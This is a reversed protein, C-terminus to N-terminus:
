MWEVRALLTWNNVVTAEICLRSLQDVVRENLKHQLYYDIDFSFSNKLIFTIEWLFQASFFSRIYLLLSSERYWDEAVVVVVVVMSVFPMWFLEISVIQQLWQSLQWVFFHCVRYNLADDWRLLGGFISDDIVQLWGWGLWSCSGCCGSGFRWCVCVCDFWGRWFIGVIERRAVCMSAIGGRICPSDHWNRSGNTCKSCWRYFSPPPIYPM